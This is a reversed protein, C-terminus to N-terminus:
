FGVDTEEEDSVGALLDAVDGVMREPLLPAEPPTAVIKSLDSRPTRPIGKQCAKCYKEFTFIFHLEADCERFMSVVPGSKAPQPNWPKNRTTDDAKKPRGRPAAM